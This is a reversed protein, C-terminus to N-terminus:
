RIWYWYVDAPNAHRNILCYATGDFLLNVLYKSKDSAVVEIPWPANLKRRSPDPRQYEQRGIRLEVGEGELETTVLMGGFEDPTPPTGHFEVEGLQFLFEYGPRLNEMPGNGTWYPVGGMKTQWPSDFMAIAVDEPLQMWKKQDFLEVALSPDLGDDQEEWGDIWLEALMGHLNEGLIGELPEDTPLPTLGDGLEDVPFMLSNAEYCQQCNFLHLVHEPGGLDIAPPEHSLQALLAMLQGCLRCRSWVELPLGWPIGGFKSCFTTQPPQMTALQFKPVHFKM